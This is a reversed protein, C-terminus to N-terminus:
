SCAATQDPQAGVSSAVPKSIPVLGMLVACNIASARGTAGIKGYVSRIHWRVTERSICLDEAIERNPKGTAILRLVQKERDTLEPARGGNMLERVLGSVVARPAWIEGNSVAKLARGFVTASAAHAIVGACGAKLFAQCTQVDENKVVVVTTILDDKGPGSAQLRGFWDEDTLLISRQVQRCIKLVEKPTETSCRVASFESDRQIWSVFGDATSLRDKITVITSRPQPAEESM